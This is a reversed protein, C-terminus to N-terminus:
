AGEFKIVLMCIDDSQSVGYSFDNIERMLRSVVGQIPVNKNTSIAKQLREESYLENSQNMAETVGDTYMFLIDGPNLILRELQFEVDKKIGVVTGETTELYVAESGNSVILPPNHGANGYLIEGTQTNLIGCFITVFMLSENDQCLDQNVRNLLRDPKLRATAKARVLTRTIAMYLSAPAGKGSVDGIIFFLNVDDVFFFDYFDGGVEKAPEIVAYIDFEPRNPFPPFTKKVISMQIERALDLECEFKEKATTTEVLKAIHKELSTEMHLISEALAGIEDKSEKPLREIASRIEEPSSFDYKVLDKAYSTLVSLPKSIKSILYFAILISFLFIIFIICQQKLVTSLIIKLIIDKDLGVHVYGAVGALIPSSIDIINGYAKTKINFIKIKESEHTLDSVEDPIGPVFTHSIIDGKQNVVFAYSVGAIDTYQDIIAQVTSADRNLLIEVTSSAISESIAMGKSIYEDTLYKNLSLASLISIASALIGFLIIMILLTKKFLKSLKIKGM